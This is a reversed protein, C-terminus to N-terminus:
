FGAEIEYITLEKLLHHRSNYPIRVSEVVPNKAQSLEYKAM